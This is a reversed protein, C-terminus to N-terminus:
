IGKKKIKQHMGHNVYFRKFFHMMSELIFCMSKCLFRSFNFWQGKFHYNTEKDVSSHRFTIFIISLNRFNEECLALFVSKYYWKCIEHLFFQSTTPLLLFCFIVDVNKKRPLFFWLTM